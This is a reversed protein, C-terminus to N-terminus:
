PDASPLHLPLIVTFTSGQGPQSTVSIEGGMLDTLRRCIALGLGTGEHLRTLGNDLQQFPHFLTGIDQSRIGIGTDTVCFRVAPVSVASSPHSFSDMAQATLTVGGRETFKIANNLLNLLIQNVRREDGKMQQLPPDIRLTLSLDKKEIQPRVSAAVREVSTRLDFDAHRIELQGAEIKSIDLVDNILELLHRASSRVMGLQKTQEANLPGALQQQLIGTFGLISNLPTRLEHSMTALFSSKLRDASEARVLAAQLEETRLAVKRELNENLERLRSQAVKQESIDISLLFVGEPVPEGRLDFWGVHGDPFTFETQEHFPQREELCRKIQAFVPSSEMGPWMDPMRQGLLEANPRRNHTQAASNLYIYRYEFDLLQCGELINDLTSRFRQESQKLAQDAKVREAIDLGVGVLCLRGEFQLRKGTFFYPLSRGDKTLFPAEVSAEGNEFVETIRAQLQAQDAAAFFDLPQMDAIEEKSYGSIHEFNQNWRLFRGASDYFYLIGPLSNIMTESFLMEAQLRAEAAGRETERVLNDLAYSIDVSAEELLAVEQDNFFGAEFAYVNLTGQVEGKVRIPFSASAEFGRKRAEEKWPAALPDRQIDNCVYSRQERFATRCPANISVAAASSLSINLTKLYDNVDGHVAVPRLLSSAQHQWAVWAMGFGGHIVLARCIKELLADREPTWVIAQNIQSLAANLRSLREIEVKHEQLALYSGEITSFTSRLLWLLLLSTVLVFGLGKFVSIEILLHPDNILGTLAQDSFLIWLTAFVAYAGAVWWALSSSRKPTRAQAPLRDNRVFEM